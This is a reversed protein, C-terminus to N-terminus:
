KVQTIFGYEGPSISKVINGAENTFVKVWASHLQITDGKKYKRADEGYLDLIMNGTDDIIILSECPVAFVGKGKEKSYKSKCRPCTADEIKGTFRFKLQKGYNNKCGELCTCMWDDQRGVEFITAVLDKGSGPSLETITSM